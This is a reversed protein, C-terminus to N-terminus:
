LKQPLFLTEISRGWSKRVDDDEMIKARVPQTLRNSVDLIKFGHAIVDAVQVVMEKVNTYPVHSSHTPAKRYYFKTDKAIWAPFFTGRPNFASNGLWQFVLGTKRDSSVVKGVGFPMPDNDSMEKPFVVIERIEIKKEELGAPLSSTEASVRSGTRPSAFLQAVEASDANVDDWRAHKVLRNVNVRMDKGDKTIIAYRAGDMRVCPYPGTWPNVFKTPAQGTRQGTVKGIDERLRSERASREWFYLLDGTEFVPNFCVRTSRNKNKRSSRDTIKKGHCVSARSINQSSDGV